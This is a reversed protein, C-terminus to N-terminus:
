LGVSGRVRVCGRWWVGGCVGCVVARGCGVLGPCWLGARVRACVVVVIGVGPRWRVGWVGVGLLGPRCWGWGRIRRKQAAPAFRRRNPRSAPRTGCHTVVDWLTGRKPECGPRHTPRPRHDPPRPPDCATTSSQETTPPHSRGSRRAGPRERVGSAQRTGSGPGRPQRVGPAQATPSSSSRVQRVGPTGSRRSRPRDRVEPRAPTGPAQRRTGSAPAAPCGTCPTRCSDSFSGSRKGSRFEPAAPRRVTGPVPRQRVEPVAASGAAAQQRRQRNAASSSRPRFRVVFFPAAKAAGQVRCRNM